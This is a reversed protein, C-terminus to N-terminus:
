RISYTIELRPGQGPGERWESSAFRYTVNGRNGAARTDIIFGNNPEGEEIWARVIETVDIRAPSELDSFEYLVLGKLSPELEQGESYTISDDWPVTANGIRARVPQENTRTIPDLLLTAQEVTAGEPLVELGFRLLPSAVLGQNDARLDLRGRNTQPETQRYGDLCTDVM